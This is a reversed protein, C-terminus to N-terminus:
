LKARGGKLLFSLSDICEEWTKTKFNNKTFKKNSLLSELEEYSDYVHDNGAFEICGGGDKFVYTPIDCALSELIHNPGPDFRSASVYVDYKSLEEGLHKGFLPEICKTHKFTGRNRGIYTFTYEKNEEVFKDIKEYIDFGKLYNDSWHHTVINTKGNNIKEKKCFNKHDVGNYVVFNNQCHWGKRLFYDMMWKSVFITKDIYKSTEIWLNDVNDTNKRADCDNVRIILETEPFSSKIKIADNISFRDKQDPFPSQLFIKNPIVEYPNEIINWGHRPMFDYFSKVFNNGGGWPGDVFSRNIYIKM